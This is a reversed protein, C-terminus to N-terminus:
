LEEIERGRKKKVMAAHRKQHYKVDDPYLPNWVTDCVKCESFAAQPSINLTTQVAPASAPKRGHKEKTPPQQNGLSSNSEELPERAPSRKKISSTRSDEESVTSRLRLIRPKRRVPRPPSSAGEHEEEQEQKEETKERELPEVEIRKFYGLISGKTGTAPAPKTASATPSTTQQVEPQPKAEGAEVSDDNSLRRRKKTPPEVSASATAQTRKGYTRLPKDRKRLQPSM